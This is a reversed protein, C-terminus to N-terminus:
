HDRTEVCGIVNVGPTCQTGCQRSVSAATRKQLTTDIAQGVHRTHALSTAQKIVAMIQSDTFRSKRM